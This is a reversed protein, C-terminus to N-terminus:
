TAEPASAGSAMAEVPAAIKLAPSNVNSVTGPEFAFADGEVWQAGGVPAKCINKAPRRSKSLDTADVPSLFDIPGMCTDLKTTAIAEVVQDRRSFADVAWEFCAYQGIAATWQEGTKTMYDQALNEASRGTISDRYPWDPQWLSEATVGRVGPGIAELAQPFLLAQSMTMVKPRYGMEQSQKWFTIFDTASMAGCCLECGDTLFGTILSSYDVGGAVYLGPVVAEYGAAMATAPLGSAADTWAAAEPGDAFVFGVKKNTEVQDWMALYNAAV